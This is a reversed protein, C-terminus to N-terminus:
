SQSFLSGFARQPSPYIVGGFERSPLLVKADGTLVKEGTQDEIYLDIDVWCRGNEQHKGTVTGRTWFVNHYGGKRIHRVNLKWVFGEDSAWNSLLMMTWSCRQSGFGGPVYSGTQEALVGWNDYINEHFNLWVKLKPHYIGWGTQDHIFRHLRDSCFYYQSAAKIWAGVESVSLPGRVVPPLTEGVTVDEWYHPTKGWVKENDQAEYIERIFEETYEPVESGSKATNYSANAMDVFCITFEQRALPIGGQHRVFEHTGKCFITTGGQRTEKVQIDTPFTTRWDIEDGEAVPLYWEISDGCYLAPFQPLAFEPYHGYVITFVWSPPAILTGYKTTKAYERDRYLPNLDGLADVLHKISDRTVATNFCVVPRPFHPGGMYSGWENVYTKGKFQHLIEAYERITISEPNKLNHVDIAM